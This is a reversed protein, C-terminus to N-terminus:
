QTDGTTIPSLASKRLAMARLRHVEYGHLMLMHKCPTGGKSYTYAACTCADHTVSYVAGGGGCLHVAGDPSPVITYGEMVMSGYVYALIDDEDPRDITVPKSRAKRYTISTDTASWEVVAKMTKTVADCQVAYWTLDRM